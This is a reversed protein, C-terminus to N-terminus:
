RNSESIRWERKLSFRNTAEAALRKKRKRVQM